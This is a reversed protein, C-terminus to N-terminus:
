APQPEQQFQPERENIAKELLNAQAETITGDGQAAVTWSFAKGKFIAWDDPSGKFALIKDMKEQYLNQPAPKTAAPKVPPQKTQPKPQSSARPALDPKADADPDIAETPICLMQFLAYKYAISMAKNTGKDATDMGEGIVETAVCSGDSAWFTYEMKLRTYFMVGGAKTAHEERASDLVKSTSFVKHNALLPHVTNYVDDIGRYQYGQQSKKGKNIHECEAVMACISEHIQPM